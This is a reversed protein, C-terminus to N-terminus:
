VEPKNISLNYILDAMDSYVSMTILYESNLEYIFNKKIQTLNKQYYLYNLVVSSFVLLILTILIFLRIDMKLKRQM